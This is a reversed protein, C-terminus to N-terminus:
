WGSPWKGFPIGFEAAALTGGPGGIRHTRVLRVHPDGRVAIKDGSCRSSSPRRKDLPYMTPRRLCIGASVALTSFYSGRKVHFVTSENVRLPALRHHEFVPRKM